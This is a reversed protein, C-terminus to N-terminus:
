AGGRFRPISSTHEGAPALRNVVLAAIAALELAVSALDVGGVAEPTGADPGFPLGSTRSVLWLAVVAANGWVGVAPSFPLAAWVLQAVGCGVFFAAFGWWERLHEPVVAFHIGAAAATAVAAITITSKM